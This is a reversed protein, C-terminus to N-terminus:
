LKVLHCLHELRLPLSLATAQGCGCSAVQLELVFREKLKHFRAIVSHAASRLVAAIDFETQLIIPLCM